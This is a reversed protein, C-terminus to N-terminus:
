TDILEHDRRVVDALEGGVADATPLHHLGGHFVAHARKPTVGPELDKVADGGDIFYHLVGLSVMAEQDFSLRLSQWCEFYMSALSSHRFGFSSCLEFNLARIRSIGKTMWQKTM